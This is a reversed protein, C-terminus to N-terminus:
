ENPLGLETCLQSFMHNDKSLSAAGTNRAIIDWARALDSRSITVKPEEIEWDTALVENASWQADGTECYSIHQKRKIRKGSKLAEILTM